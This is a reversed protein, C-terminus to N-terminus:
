LFSHTLVMEVDRKHQNSASLCGCQGKCPTQLAQQAIFLSVLPAFTTFVIINSELEKRTLNSSGLKLINRLTEPTM